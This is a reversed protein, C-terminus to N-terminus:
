INDEHRRGASYRQGLKAALVRVDDHIHHLLQIQVLFLESLLGTLADNAIPAVLDRPLLYAAVCLCRDANEHQLAVEDLLPLTLRRRM